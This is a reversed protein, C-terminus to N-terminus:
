SSNSSVQLTPFIFGVLSSQLKHRCKPNQHWFTVIMAINDRVSLIQEQFSLTHLFRFLKPQFAIKKFPNVLFKVELLKDENLIIIKLPRVLAKGLM